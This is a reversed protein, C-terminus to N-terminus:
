HLTEYGYELGGTPSVFDYMKFVEGNDNIYDVQVHVDAGLSEFDSFIFSGYAFELRNIKELTTTYDLTINYNTTSVYISQLLPVTFNYQGDNYTVFESATSGISNLKGISSTSVIKTTFYTGDWGLVQRIGLHTQNFRFDCFTGSIKGLPFGYDSIGTGLVFAIDLEPNENPVSVTYWGWPYDIADKVDNGAPFKEGWNMDGYARFQSSHNYTYVESGVTLQGEVLSNHTYTNWAIEGGAYKRQWYELDQQGYWGNIRSITVNWTIITDIPIGQCVKVNATQNMMGYLRYTDNNIVDLGYMLQGDNSAKLTFYDEVSFVDLPFFESKQWRAGTDVEVAGVTMSFVNNGDTANHTDDVTYSFFIYRNNAFDALYFYWWQFFPHDAPYEDRRYRQYYAPPNVIGDDAFPWDKAINQSPPSSPLSSVGWALCALLLLYQYM